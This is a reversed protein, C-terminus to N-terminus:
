KYNMPTSTPLRGPLSRRWAIQRREQCRLLRPVREETAQERVISNGVEVRKRRLRCRLSGAQRQTLQLNKTKHALALRVPGDRRLQRAALASHVPM